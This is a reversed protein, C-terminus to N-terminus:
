SGESLLQEVTQTIEARAQRDFEKSGRSPFGVHVTRVKGDRGVFVTAPWTDLHNLQPVKEWM